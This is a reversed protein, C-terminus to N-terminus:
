DMGGTQITIPLNDAIQKLLETHRRSELLTNAYDDHAKQRAAAEEREGITWQARGRARMASQTTEVRSATERTQESRLHGVRQEHLRIEWAGEAVQARVLADHKEDALRLETKALAIREEARFPPEPELRLRNYNEVAHGVEEQAKRIATLDSLDVMARRHRENEKVIDIEAKTRGEAQMRETQYTLKTQETRK